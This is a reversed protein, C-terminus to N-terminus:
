AGFGQPPVSHLGRRRVGRFLCRLAGGGYRVAAAEIGFLRFVAAFIVACVAIVAIDGARRRLYGLFM